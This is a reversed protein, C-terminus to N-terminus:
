RRYNTLKMAKKWESPTLDAGSELKSLVAKDGGSATPFGSHEELLGREKLEAQLREQVLRDIRQEETEGKVKSPSKVGEAKVVRAEAREIRGNMLLDEIREMADDDDAFVEKARNYVADARQAYEQQTQKAQEEKRKSEQEERQKKLLVVVDQRQEPDIDDASRGTAVATALLEITDQLGNIRSDLDTQKKLDRDKESLTRQLGKYGSDLREKESTLVGIKAQLTKLQEELTPAQPEGEPEPTQTTEVENGVEDEM